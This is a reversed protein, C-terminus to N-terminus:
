QRRASTWPNLGFIHQESLMTRLFLTDGLKILVNSLERATCTHAFFVKRTYGYGYLLYDTMKLFPPLISFHEKTFCMLRGVFIFCWTEVPQETFGPLSSKLFNKKPTNNVSM